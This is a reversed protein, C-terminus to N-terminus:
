CECWWAGYTKERKWIVQIESPLTILHDYYLMTAAALFFYQPRSDTILWLFLMRDRVKGVTRGVCFM